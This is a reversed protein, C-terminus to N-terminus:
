DDDQAVEALFKSDAWWRSRLYVEARGTSLEGHRQSAQGSWGSSASEVAAGLEDYDNYHQASHPGWHRGIIGEVPICGQTDEADVDDDYPTSATVLPFGQKTASVGAVGAGLVDRLDMAPPPVHRFYLFQLMMLSASAVTTRCGFLKDKDQLGTLLNQLLSSIATPFKEGVNREPMRCGGAFIVGSAKALEELDRREQSDMDLRHISVYLGPPCPASDDAGAGSAAGRSSAMAAGGHSNKGDSRATNAYDVALRLDAEFRRLGLVHRVEDAESYELYCDALLAILFQLMSYSENPLDYMGHLYAADVFEDAAFPGMYTEAGGLDGAASAAGSSPAAEHYQLSGKGLGLERM